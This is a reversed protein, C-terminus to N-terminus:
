HLTNPKADRQDAQAQGAHLADLMVDADHMVKELLADDANALLDDCAEKLRELIVRAPTRPPRV